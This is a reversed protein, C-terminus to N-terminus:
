DYLQRRKTTMMCGHGLLLLSLSFVCMQSLDLFSAGTSVPYCSMHGGELGGELVGEGFAGQVFFFRPCVWSM